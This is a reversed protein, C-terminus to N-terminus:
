IIVHLTSKMQVVGASPHKMLLSPHPINLLEGQNCDGGDFECAETNCVPDCAGDGHWSPPCFCDLRDGMSKMPIFFCKTFLLINLEIDFNFM